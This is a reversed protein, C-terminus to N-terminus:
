AEEFVSRILRPLEDFSITDIEEFDKKETLKVFYQIEVNIRKIKMIDIYKELLKGFEVELNVSAKIEMLIDLNDKNAKFIEKTDTVEYRICAMIKEFQDIIKLKKDYEKSQGGNNELKALSEDLLKAVIRILLDQSNYTNVHGIRIDLCESGSITTGKPYKLKM